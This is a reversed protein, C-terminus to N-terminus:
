GVQKGSTQADHLPDVGGGQEMWMEQDKSEFSQAM